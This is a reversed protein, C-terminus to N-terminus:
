GALGYRTMLEDLSVTDSKGARVDVLRQEALYLDELDELHETIAETAYFTKSRGTRTALATLRTEVDKPLRISMAMLFDGNLNRYKYRM